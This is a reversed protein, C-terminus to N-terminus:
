QENDLYRWEYGKHTKLKGNCCKSIHGSDYGNREAEATSPFAMELDGDKFAGVRKSQDQRNILKGKMAKSVRANRTGFNSNQKPTVLELNSIHNNTKDEDKHNLQFGEPVERGNVAIWCVRHVFQSHRKSNNDMLNVTQYGYKNTQPKLFKNRVKSWIRGDECVDYKNYDRFM